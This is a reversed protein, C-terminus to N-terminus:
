HEYVGSQYQGRYICLRSEPKHFPMIVPMCIIVQLNNDGNIQVKYASLNDFYNMTKYVNEVLIKALLCSFTVM